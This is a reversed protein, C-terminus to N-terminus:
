NNGYIREKVPIVVEITTGKGPSGSVSVKGDLAYVREQMGIIGFTQKKKFDKEQIGVGNDKISMSLRSENTLCKISVETASAHRSINTLAEQLIRFIATKYEQDMTSEEIAIERNILISNHQEFKETLWEIAAELGLDDLITPRLEAVVSKMNHVSSDVLSKMASIKNLVLKDQVAKNKGIWALDMKLSTLTQGFEDHIERAIAVREDERVSQLHMPLDKM